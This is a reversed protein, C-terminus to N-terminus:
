LRSIDYSSFKFLLLECIADMPRKEGLFLISTTDIYTVSSFSFVGTTPVLLFLVLTTESVFVLFFYNADILNFVITKPAFYLLM